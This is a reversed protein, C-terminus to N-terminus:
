LVRPEIGFLCFIGPHTDGVDGGLRTLRCHIAEANATINGAPIILGQDYAIQNAVNVPDLVYTTTYNTGGSIVDSDKKIRYDLRLKVLGANATSMCYRFRLRIGATYRLEPELRFIIDQNVLHAFGAADEFNYDDIDVMPPPSSGEYFPLQLESLTDSLPFREVHEAIVVWTAGLTPHNVYEKLLWNTAVTDDLWIYGYEPSTPAAPGKNATALAQLNTRVPTSAVSDGIAPKTYDFGQPM